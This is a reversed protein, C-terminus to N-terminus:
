ATRSAQDALPHNMGRIRNLSKLRMALITSQENFESAPRKWTRLLEVLFVIAGIAQFSHFPLVDSSPFLCRVIPICVLVVGLWVAPSYPRRLLMGAAIPGLITYTALETAPGFITMWFLGLYLPLFRASDTTRWTYTRWAFVIAMIISVLMAHRASAVVGFWVRPIVTWDHPIRSIHQTAYRDDGATYHWFSIYQSVVYDMPQVAFPLTVVVVLALLVRWWMRPVVIAFLCGVAIPYIKLCIGFGIWAAAENLRNQLFAATAHLLTGTVLLNLQGNNFSPIVLMLSVFSACAFVMPKPQPHLQRVLRLGGSIFLGISVVRWLLAAGRPPLNAWLMFFTTTPPPNRYVDHPPAPAYTDDGRAFREAANLYIQVVSQSNLSVTAVRVLVSVCLVGWLAFAIM